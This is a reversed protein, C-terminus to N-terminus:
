PSHTRPCTCSACHKAAAPPQEPLKATGTMQLNAAHSAASANAECLAEKGGGQTGSTQVRWLTMHEHLDQGSAASHLHVSCTM